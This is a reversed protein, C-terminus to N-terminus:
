IYKPKISCFDSSKRIGLESFKDLKCLQQTWNAAKTHISISLSKTGGDIVM